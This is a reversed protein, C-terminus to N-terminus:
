NLNTRKLLKKLAQNNKEMLFKLESKDKDAVTKLAQSNKEMLLKLESKDKETVTKLAQNNKEMLLKLESKDKVAKEAVTKFAQINKEILLKLESKDKEAVTTLRAIETEIILNLERKERRLVANEELVDTITKFELAKKRNMAFDWLKDTAEQWHQQQVPDNVNVGSQSFSDIFIFSVNKELAFKDYLQLQLERILWAENHCYDSEEGYFECDRNRKIADSDYHWKSVGVIMFDWWTEGFISTMQTIMDYLGNRFRPTNGDVLLLIANTYVLDDKLIQVMEQIHM